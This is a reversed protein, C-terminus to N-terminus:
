QALERQLRALVGEEEEKSEESSSPNQGGEGALLEAQKHADGEQEEEDAANGTVESKSKGAKAELRMEDVMENFEDFSDLNSIDLQFVDNDGNELPIEMVKNGTFFAEAMADFVYQFSVNDLNPKIGRKEAELDALFMFNRYVVVAFGELLYRAKAKQPKKAEDGKVVKIQLKKKM